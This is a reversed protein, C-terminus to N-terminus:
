RKVQYSLKAKLIINYIYNNSESTQNIENKSISNDNKTISFNSNSNKRLFSNKDNNELKNKLLESEKSINIFGKTPNAFTSKLTNSNKINKVISQPKIRTEIEDSNRSNNINNNIQENASTEKKSLTYSNAQTSYNQKSKTDATGKTESIQYDEIKKSKDMIHDYNLFKEKPRFRNLQGKESFNKIKEINDKLLTFNENNLTNDPKIVENEKKSLQYVVM